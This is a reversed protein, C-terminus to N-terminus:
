RSTLAVNLLSNLSSSIQDVKDIEGKELLFVGIANNDAQLAYVPEPLESLCDGIADHLSEKAEKRFWRWHDWRSEWGRRQGKLLTWEGFAERLRTRDDPNFPIFYKVAGPRKDDEASDPPPCLAVKLGQASARQRFATMRAQAPTSKLWALPSLVVAIIFFILFYSLPAEEVQGM